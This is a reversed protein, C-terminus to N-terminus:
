TFGGFGLRLLGVVVLYLAAVALLDRADARRRLWALAARFVPIMASAVALTGGLVLVAGGFRADQLVDMLLLGTVVFASWVAALSVKAISTQRDPRLGPSAIREQPRVKVDM